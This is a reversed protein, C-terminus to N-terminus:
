ISERPNAAAVLGEYRLVHAAAVADWSYTRRVLTEGAQGAACRVERPLLSRIAAALSQPTNEVWRGCGVEELVRWPTFRSAIVPTKVALAEIAVLGFNESHSALVAVDIRSLFEWKSDDKVNGLFGVADGVGQEAALSVLRHHYEQSEIPGAVELRVPVGARRLEGVALIVQDIAKIPHVRGLMGLTLPRADAVAEYARSPAGKPVDVGNPIVAIDAGFQLVATIAAREHEATAHFLAVRGLLPRMARLWARKRGAGHDMANPQLAGRPSLIVPKRAFQAAMLGFVSTSNFVSSVHVLDAWRAWYLCRPLVGPAVDPKAIRKSYAVPTDEWRTWGRPVDLTGDGNANTTVVRVDLGAAGLAKVLGPVSRVPGGYVWAPAYSPAVHLVKLRM